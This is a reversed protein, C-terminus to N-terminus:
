IHPISDVLVLEFEDHFITLSLCGYDKNELECPPSFNAIPRM